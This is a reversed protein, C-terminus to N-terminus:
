RGRATACSLRREKRICAFVGDVEQECRLTAIQADEPSSPLGGEPLESARLEGAPEMQLTDAQSGSGLTSM